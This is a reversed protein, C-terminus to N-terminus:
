VAKRRRRAVALGALSTALLSWVILSVPEPIANVYDLQIVVDQYDKDSSGLPLDEIAFVYEDSVSAGSKDTLIQFKVVHVDGGNSAPDSSWTLGGTTDEITFIEHADKPLDATLSIYNYYGSPLDLTTFLEKDISDRYWIDQSYGAYKATATAKGDPNYFQTEDAIQVWSGYLHGMISLDVDKDAVPLLNLENAGGGLTPAWPQKPITISAFGQSVVLLVLVGCVFINLTTKM